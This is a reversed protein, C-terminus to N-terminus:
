ILDIINVVTQIKTQIIKNKLSLELGKHIPKPFYNIKFWGWALHEDSLLPIFENDILCFYTHFSFINDDSVFRELPLIKKIDPLFGIEEIIERQLGQWPNEDILNTGGVLGWTGSHKGNSKQVLLIRHTNKCYILAGSCNINPIM